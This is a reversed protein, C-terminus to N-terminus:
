NSACPFQSYAAIANTLPFISLKNDSVLPSATVFVDDGFALQDVPKGSDIELVHANEETSSAAILHDNFAAPASVIRGDLRRKWKVDGTYKSLMYLFNDFSGVLIGEDTESITGVKAGSKFKWWVTGASDRYNTVLGREDGTVIMGNERIAISTVIRAAPIAAVVKGTGTSIVLIKRDQTSVVLTEDSISPAATLKAALDARWVPAGTRADFAAIAGTSVVGIVRNGSALLHVDSGSPFDVSYRVLGSDSNLLRLTAAGSGSAGTATVVALGAQSVVTMATVTGGLETSWLVKGTGANLARVRGEGDAFYVSGNATTAMSRAANEVAIEWCKKLPLYAESANTPTPSAAVNQACITAAFACTLCMALLVFARLNM